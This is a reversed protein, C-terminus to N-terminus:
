RFDDSSHEKNCSFTAKLYKRYYNEKLKIQNKQSQKDRYRSDGAAALREM